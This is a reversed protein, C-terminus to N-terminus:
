SLSRRTGSTPLEVESETRKLLAAYEEATLLERILPLDEPRIPPRHWDTTDM